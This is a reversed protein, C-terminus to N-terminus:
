HSATGTPMAPFQEAFRPSVTYRLSGKGRQSFGRALMLADHEAQIKPGVWYVYLTAPEVVILLKFGLSELYRYDGVRYYAIDMMEQTFAKTQVFEVIMGIDTRDFGPPLGFVMEYLAVIDVKRRALTEPARKKHHSSDGALPTIPAGAIDPNAIGLLDLLEREAFYMITAMEPSAIVANQPTTEKIFTGFTGLKDIRGWRNGPTAFEGLYIQSITTEAYAPVLLIGLLVFFAAPAFRALRAVVAYLSTVILVLLLCLLPMPYRAWMDPFWDGGGTYYALCLTVLAGIFIAARLGLGLIFWILVPGSVALLLDFHQYALVDTLQKIGYALYNLDFGTNKFAVPVPTVSGFQYLRWASLIILPGMVIVFRLLLIRGIRYLHRKATWPRIGRVYLELITGVFVLLGVIIGEVRVLPLLGLVIFARFSWRGRRVVLWYFSLLLLGSFLPAMFGSAGVYAVPPFVAMLLGSTTGALHSGTLSRAIRYSAVVLIVNGCLGIVIAADPLPIRFVGALAAALVFPGFDVTAEIAEHANV